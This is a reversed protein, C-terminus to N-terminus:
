TQGQDAMSGPKRAIWRDQVILARTRLRLWLLKQGYRALATLRPLPPREPADYGLRRLRGGAVYEFLRLEWQELGDAYGGIADANVPKATNAHWETRQREPLEPAAVRHSELMSEEFDEGLFDCLAMLQGRPDTVLHEYHVAYFTDAPLRRAARRGCDVSHTWIVMADISDQRWWSMQKMSAVCDRGDRILHIFQADPFLTRIADVNRFYTPRKDGWREKGFRAAYSRYVTGLASGVTPAGQVIQRRLPPRPLGLHRFNMGPTRLIFLALARRNERVTLDGFEARRRYVPMLFRTEPPIAIRSHSHLMLSLLTTGSRPCGFIFIPRNSAM